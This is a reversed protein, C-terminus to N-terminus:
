RRQAIIQRAANKVVGGDEHGKAIQSLSAEISDLEIADFLRRAYEDRCWTRLNEVHLEAMRNAPKELICRQSELVHWGSQECCRDLLKGILLTQGYHAQLQAVLEYYRRLTLHAAGLSETEHILLLAGPVAASAWDALLQGPSRFHTLLFRCFMVNAPPAPFPVRTIDHVILELRSGHNERAEAIYRESADLGITREPALEEQLVRTSWGPGCGLDIAIRPTRAGSRRLLVRAEPEYLEALRRLRASARDNDGFTYKDGPLHLWSEEAPGFSRGAFAAKPLCRM